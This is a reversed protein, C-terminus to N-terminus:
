ASIADMGSTGEVFAAKSNDDLVAGSGGTLVSDNRNLDNATRAHQFGEERVQQLEDQEGESLLGGESPDPKVPEKEERLISSRLVRLREMAGQVNVNGELEGMARDVESVVRERLVSTQEVTM